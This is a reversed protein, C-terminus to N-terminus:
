IEKGAMMIVLRIGSTLLEIVTAKDKKISELHATIKAENVIKGVSNVLLINDKITKEEFASQNLM